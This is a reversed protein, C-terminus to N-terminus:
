AGDKLKCQTGDHKIEYESKALIEDTEKIIKEWREKQERSLKKIAEREAM